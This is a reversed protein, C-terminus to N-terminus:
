RKTLLGIIYGFIQQVYLLNEQSIEGTTTFPPTRDVVAQRSPRHRMSGRTDWEARPGSRMSLLPTVVTLDSYIRSHGGLLFLSKAVRDSHDIRYLKKFSSHPLSMKALGSYYIRSCSNVRRRAQVSAVIDRSTPIPILSWFCALRVSKHLRFRLRCGPRPELM